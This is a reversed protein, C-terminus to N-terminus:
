RRMASRFEGLRFAGILQGIGFYSIVGTAILALLALYRWSAMDFVPSLIMGAHLLIVGM